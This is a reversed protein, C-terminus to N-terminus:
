RAIWEEAARRPIRWQRRRLGPIQFAFLRGMAIAEAVRQQPRDALAAVQVQSLLEDGVRLLAALAEWEDAELFLTEIGARLLAIGFSSGSAAWPTREIRPYDEDAAASSPASAVLERLALLEAWPFMITKGGHRLVALPPTDTTRHLAIM